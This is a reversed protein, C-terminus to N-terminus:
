PKPVTVTPTNVIIPQTTSHLKLANYSLIGLILAVAVALVQTIINTNARGEQRTQLGGQINAENRDVRQKLDDFKDSLAQTKTTFLDELKKISEQQQEESKNIATTNSKNQESAAEKQAALAADLNTKSDEKQEVRLNEATAFKEKIHDFEKESLEKLNKVKEDIEVTIGPLMELRLKTAEDIGRLREELRSIEGIVYDRESKVAREVADNTAVTPDPNPKTAPENQMQNEVM